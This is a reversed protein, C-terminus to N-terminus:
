TIDSNTPSLVRNAWELRCSSTDMRIKGDEQDATSCDRTPGLLPHYTIGDVILIDEDEALDWEFVTFYWYEQNWEDNIIGYTGVADRMEVENDSFTGLSALTFAIPCNVDTANDYRDRITGGIPFEDLLFIENTADELWQAVPAPNQLNEHKLASLEFVRVAGYDVM